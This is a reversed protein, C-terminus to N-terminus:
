VQEDPNAEHQQPPPDIDIAVHDGGANHDAAHPQAQSAQPRLLSTAKDIAAPAMVDATTWAAFVPASVVTNVTQKVAAIVAPSAGMKKAAKGAATKAALVGAFGGGLVAGSKILDTARFVDRVGQLTDTAIDRPLAAARKLGGKLQTGWSAQKLQDFQAEWDERGLLYAAGKRHGSENFHNMVLYAAGGAVPGGAAAIWSDVNAAKAAGMTATAIPGVITRVVNRMSYTQFAGSVEAALRSLSPKKAEAAEAMVPSLQEPKATMWQIDEKAARQLVTGGVTDAVGSLSGVVAGAQAPTKAFATLKPVADFLRSAVGFPVSTAFGSAALSVQDFHRGKSLTALLSEPTEGKRDLAAARDAILAEFQAANEETMHPAFIDRLTHALAAGNPIDIHSGVSSASRTLAADSHAWPLLSSPVRSSSIYGDSHVAGEGLLSTSSPSMQLTHHSSHGIAGAGGQGGANIRTSSRQAPPLDNLGALPGSHRASTSPPEAAQPPAPTHEALQLHATETGATTSSVNFM